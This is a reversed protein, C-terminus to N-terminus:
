TITEDGELLTTTTESRRRTVRLIGGVSAPSAASGHGDVPTRLRRFSLSEIGGSDVGTRLSGRLIAGSKAGWPPRCSMGTRPAAACRFLFGRPRGQRDCHRM